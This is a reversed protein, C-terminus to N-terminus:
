PQVEIKLKRIVEKKDKSNANIGIFVVEYIGAAKYTFSYTNLPVDRYTKIGVGPNRGINTDTIIFPKSICWQRYENAVTLPGRMTVASSSSLDFANTGWENVTGEYISKWGATASSMLLQSEKPSVGTLTLAQFRWISSKGVTNNNPRNTYCFAIYSQKNKRIENVINVTGSSIYPNTSTCTLPSWSFKSSLDTWTATKIRQLSDAKSTLNNLDLDSTVMVSFQNAQCLPATGGQSRVQNQFALNLQSLAVISDRNAYGYHNGFEGSYFTIMDPNGKMSFIIPNGLKVTTKTVSVNFEPENVALDKSCAAHLLVVLLAMYTKFNKM